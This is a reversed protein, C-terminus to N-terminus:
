LLDIIPPLTLLISLGLLTFALTSVRGLAVAKRRWRWELIGWTVLWILIAATTVGALPGTPKYINLASKILPSKDGALALIALAFCGIGASLIAAAGSGNPMIPKAISTEDVQSIM